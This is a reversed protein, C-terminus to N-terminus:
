VPGGHKHQPEKRFRDLVASLEFGVKLGAFAYLLAIVGVSSLVIHSVAIDTLINM